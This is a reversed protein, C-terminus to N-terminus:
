NIGQTNSIKGYHSIFIKKPEVIYAVFVTPLTIDYPLNIPYLSTLKTNIASSKILYGHSGHILNVKKYILNISEQPVIKKENPKVEEYHNYGLFLVEWDTPANEIINNISTKLDDISFEADDEIILAYPKNSEKFTKLTNYHSMYCGIEGLKLNSKSDLINEKILNYKKIDKGNVASYSSPTVINYIKNRREHDKQLSILYIPIDILFDFNENIKPLHFFIITIIIVFCIVVLYKNLKGM